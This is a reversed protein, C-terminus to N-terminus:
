LTSEPGAQRGRPGPAPRLNALRVLEDYLEDHYSLGYRTACRHRRSRICDEASGPWGPDTWSQWDSGPSYATWSGGGSGGAKSASPAPEGLLIM